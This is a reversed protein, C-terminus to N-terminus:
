AVRRSEFYNTYDAEPSKIESVTQRNTRSKAIKDIDFTTIAQKSTKDNASNKFGGFMNNDINNTNINNYTNIEPLVPESQSNLQEKLPNSFYGFGEQRKAEVRQKEANLLLSDTMSTGTLQQLKEENRRIEEDHQNVEKLVPYTKLIYENIKDNDDQRILFNKDEDTLKPISFNKIYNKAYSM